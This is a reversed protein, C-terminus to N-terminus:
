GRPVWRPLRVTLPESGRESFWCRLESLLDLRVVPVDEVANSAIDLRLRISEGPLVTRPLPFRLWDRDVVREEADARQVGVQVWGGQRLPGGLWVTDGTNVIDVILVGPLPQDVLQLTARLDHPHRSDPPVGSGPVTLYAVEVRSGESSFWTLYEDVPDFTVGYIGPTVPARMRVTVDVTEGPAV